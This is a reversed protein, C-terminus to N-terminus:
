HFRNFHQVFVKPNRVVDSLSKLEKAAIQKVVDKNNPHLVWNTMEDVDKKLRARYKRIADADNRRDRWRKLTEQDTMPDMGMSIRHQSIMDRHENLVKRFEEATM